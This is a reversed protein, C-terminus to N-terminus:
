FQIHNRTRRESVYCCRAKFCRWLRRTYVMLHVRYLQVLGHAWFCGMSLILLVASVSLYQVGHFVFLCSSVGLICLGVALMQLIPHKLLVSIIVAMLFIAAPVLIIEGPKSWVIYFFSERFGPDWAQIYFGYISGVLFSYIGWVIMEASVYKWIVMTAHEEKTVLIYLCTGSCIIMLLAAWVFPFLWYAIMTTAFCIPLVCSPVDMLYLYIAGLSLALVSSWLGLHYSVRCTPNVVTQYGLFAQDDKYDTTTVNREAALTKEMTIVNFAVLSTYVVRVKGKVSHHNVVASTPTAERLFDKRSAVWLTDQTAYLSHSKLEYPRYLRANSNNGTVPPFHHLTHTSSSFCVAEDQLISASDMQFVACWGNTYPPDNGPFGVLVAHQSQEDDFIFMDNNDDITTEFYELLSDNSPFYVALAHPSLGFGPFIRNKKDQKQFIFAMLSMKTDNKADQYHIYPVSRNFVSPMWGREADKGGAKIWTQVDKPVKDFNPSQQLTAIGFKEEDQEFSSVFDQMYSGMYNCMTPVDMKSEPTFLQVQLLRGADSAAKGVAVVFLAYLLSVLFTSSAATTSLAESSTAICCGFATDISRSLKVFDINDDNMGLGSTATPHHPNAPLPETTPVRGSPREMGQEYGSGDEQLDLDGQEVSAAVKQEMKQAGKWFIYSDVVYLVLFMALGLTVSAKAHQDILKNQYLVKTKKEENDFFDDTDNENKKDDEKTPIFHYQEYEMSAKSFMGLAFAMGIINVLVVCLPYRLVKCWYKIPAWCLVWFPPVQTEQEQEEETLIAAFAAGGDDLLPAGGNAMNGNGGVFPATSSDM